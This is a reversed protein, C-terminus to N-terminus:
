GRRNAFCFNINIILLQTGSLIVDRSHCFTAVWAEHAHGKWQRVVSMTDVSMLTVCGRTDSAVLTDNQYLDVSLCVLVKDTSTGM